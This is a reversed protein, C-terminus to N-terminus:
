ALIFSVKEVDASMVLSSQVWVFAEPIMKLGSVKKQRGVEALMLWKRGSNM